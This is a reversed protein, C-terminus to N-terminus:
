QMVEDITERIRRLIRSRSMYISGPSVSLSQAVEAVSQGDIMTAWFAQWSNTAFESQVKGAAWVILEHEYQRELTADSEGPHHAILMAADTGGQGATQRRQRSMFKIVVNRSVRCLWRRFSADQGDDKWGSVSGAIAILVQQTTDGVHQPPVGQRIAMHRLFPEYDEVFSWWASQDSSDALRVILSPRTDPNLM